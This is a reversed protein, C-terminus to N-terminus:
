LKGVVSPHVASLGGDVALAQGNLYSSADSALFLVVRAIEDPSGARQLPNLQGIKDEEGKERADDFISATMDTKIIGPCVANVRIGTGSLQFAMTQVISVIAAKSAAYPTPGANARLAAISSNGIISGGPRPKEASTKMM